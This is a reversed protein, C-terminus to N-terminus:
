GMEVGERTIFFEFRAGKEVQLRRLVREGVGWEDVFCEFRGREIVERRAEVDRLADEVTVEVPIKSLPARQVVLRLRPLRPWPPPLPPRHADPTRKPAGLSRSTFIIPTVFTRAATQLATALQPYGPPSTDDALTQWHFASASDLAIFAIPRDHSHHTTPNFLYEPLSEITAITSPLSNPTFIHIHQLCELLLSDEHPHATLLRQIQQALRPVSFHNDTDLLIVSAERGHFRTPLVAISILHYLLHTKGAGPQLSTLEV